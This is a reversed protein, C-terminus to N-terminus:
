NVCTFIISLCAFTNLEQAKNCEETCVEFRILEGEKTNQNAEVKLYHM